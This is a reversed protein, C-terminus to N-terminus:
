IYFDNETKPIWGDLVKREDEDEDEDKEIASGCMSGDLGSMTM